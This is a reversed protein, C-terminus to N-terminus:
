GMITEWGKEYMVQMWHVQSGFLDMQLWTEKMIDIMRLYPKQPLRLALETLRREAFERGLAISHDVRLDALEPGLVDGSYRLEAGATLVLMPHLCSTGSSIPLAEVLGLTHLALNTRYEDERLGAPDGDEGSDATLRASLIAPFVHYIQLLGADRYAEALQVFHDEPTNQDESDLVDECTPISAVKLAQEVALAWNEEAQTAIPGHSSNVRRRMIRGVEAFLMQVHPAIGTWPHPKITDKVVNTRNGTVNLNLQQLSAELSVPDAPMADTRSDVFAVMMEWYIMAHMFFQELARNNNDVYLRPQSLKANILERAINLYDLGIDGANHWSVTPGLLLIALLVRDATASGSKWLQLDNHISIRAQRQKEVGLQVMASNANALHACSMSQIALAISGSTDWNHGVLARFPNKTSDFLAYLRCVQSFYHEVLDSDSYQTPTMRYYWRLLDEPAHNSGTSAHRSRKPAFVLATEHPSPTEEIVEEENARLNGSVYLMADPLCDDFAGLTTDSAALHSDKPHSVTTELNSLYPTPFMEFAQMSLGASDQGLAEETAQPHQFFPPSISDVLDLEHGPTPPAPVTLDDLPLREEVAQDPAASASTPQLVEYKSSWRFDRVYGPCAVGKGTCRKCHPKTEDCKRRTARCRQCGNRSKTPKTLSTSSTSALAAASTQGTISTGGKPKLDRM